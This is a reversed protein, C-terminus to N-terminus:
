LSNWPIPSKKVPHMTNSIGPIMPIRVVKRPFGGCFDIMIRTNRGNTRTIISKQPKKWAFDDSNVHTGLIGLVICATFFTELPFENSNSPSNPDGHGPVLGPNRSKRRFRYPFSCTTKEPSSRLTGFFTEQELAVWVQVPAVRPNGLLLLCKQSEGARM